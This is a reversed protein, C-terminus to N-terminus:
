GIRSASNERLICTGAHTQGEGKATPILPTQRVHVHTCPQADKYTHTRRVSKEQQDWGLRTNSLRLKHQLLQDATQTHPHCAKDKGECQWLDIFEFLGLNIGSNALHLILDGAQIVLVQLIVQLLSLLFNVWLPPRSHINITQVLLCMSCGFLHFLIELSSQTVLALSTRKTPNARQYLFAFLSRQEATQMVLFGCQLHKIKSAPGTQPWFPSKDFASIQKDVTCTRRPPKNTPNQPHLVEHLKRTLVVFPHLCAQRSSRSPCEAGKSDWVYPWARRADKTLLGRPLDCSNKM